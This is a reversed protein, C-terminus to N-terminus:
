QRRMRPTAASADHGDLYRIQSANGVRDFRAVDATM